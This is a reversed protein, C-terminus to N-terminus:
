EKYQEHLWRRVQVVAAYADLPEQPVLLGLPVLRRWGKPPNESWYLRRAAETSYAEDVVYQPLKPLLIAVKEAVATSHTGNGLVVAVVNAERCFALVDEDFNTSRAICLKHICGLVDVLALGTKSSGPDIGLFTFQPVLQKVDMM